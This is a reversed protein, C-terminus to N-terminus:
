QPAKELVAEVAECWDQWAGPDAPMGDAANVQIDSLVAALDDTGGSREHYRELFVVMSRFARELSLTENSMMM